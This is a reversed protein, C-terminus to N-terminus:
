KKWMREMKIEYTLYDTFPKYGYQHQLVWQAMVGGRYNYETLNTMEGVGLDKTFDSESVGFTDLYQVIVTADYGLKTPTSIPKFNKVAVKLGQTGGICFLAIREEDPQQPNLSGIGFAPFTEVDIGEKFWDEDLIKKLFKNGRKEIPNRNFQYHFIQDVLKIVNEIAKKGIDTKYIADAIIKTKYYPEGKKNYFNHVLESGAKQYIDLTNSNKYFSYLGLPANAFGKIKNEFFNQLFAESINPLKGNLILEPMLLNLNDLNSVELNFLISAQPDPVPKLYDFYLQNEYNNWLTGVKKFTEAADSNSPVSDSHSTQDEKDERKKRRDNEILITMKNTIENKDSAIVSFKDPLSFTKKNIKFFDYEISKKEEIESPLGACERCKEFKGISKENEFYEGNRSAYVKVGQASSKKYDEFEVVFENYSNYGCYGHKEDKESNSSKPYFLQGTEINEIIALRGKFEPSNEGVFAYPRCNENLIIGKNDLDYYTTGRKHKYANNVCIYDLEGIIIYDDKLNGYVDINTIGIDAPKKIGINGTKM